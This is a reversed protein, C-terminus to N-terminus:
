KVKITWAALGGGCVSGRVPVNNANRASFTYQFIDGETCSFMDIGTIRVNSYGAAEIAHIASGAGPLSESGGGGLIRAFLFLVVLILLLIAVILVFIRGRRM